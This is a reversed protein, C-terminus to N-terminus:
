LISWQYKEIALEQRQRICMLIVETKQKMKGIVIIYWLIILILSEMKLTLTLDDLSKAYVEHHKGKQDTWRYSYTGNKRQYEGKKLVIRNTDKKKTTM